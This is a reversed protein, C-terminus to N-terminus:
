YWQVQPFEPLEPINQKDDPDIPSGIKTVLAGTVKIKTMLPFTSGGDTILTEGHNISIDTLRFTGSDGVQDYMKIKVIPVTNRDAPYAYAKVNRVLAAINAPNFKYGGVTAGTAIYTAEIVIKRADSGKFIVVPEYTWQDHEEWRLAKSDDVLRPPFQFPIQGSGPAAFGNVPDTIIQFSVLKLLSQDFQQLSFM